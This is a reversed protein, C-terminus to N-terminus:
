AHLHKITHRIWKELRVLRAATLALEQVGSQVARFLGEVRRLSAMERHPEPPPSLAGRKRVPGRHRVAPDQIALAKYNINLIRAAEKRTWNTQALARAIAEAEAEDKLNRVLSKLGRNPADPPKNEAAANGLQLERIVQADEGLILYRKM